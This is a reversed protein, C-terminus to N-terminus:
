GMSVSSGKVRESWFAFLSTQSLSNVKSTDGSDMRGVGVVCNGSLFIFSTICHIWVITGARLSLFSRGVHILKHIAFHM